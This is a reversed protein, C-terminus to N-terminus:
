DEVLAGSLSLSIELDLEPRLNTSRLRIATVSWSVSMADWAM